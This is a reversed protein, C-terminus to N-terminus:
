QRGTQRCFYSPKASTQTPKPPLKTVWVVSNLCNVFYLYQRGISQSTDLEEPIYTGLYDGEDQIHATVFLRQKEEITISKIIPHPRAIESVLNGATDRRLIVSVRQFKNINAKLDVLGEAFSNCFFSDICSDDFIHLSKHYDIMGKFPRRAHKPTM